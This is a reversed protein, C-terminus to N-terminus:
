DKFCLNKGSSGKFVLDKQRLFIKKVDCGYHSM